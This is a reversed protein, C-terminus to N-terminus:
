GVNKWLNDKYPDGTNSFDFPLTPQENEAVLSNLYDNNNPTNLENDVSRIGDFMGEYESEPIDRPFEEYDPNTFVDTSLGLPSAENSPVKDYKSLDISSLYNKSPNQLYLDDGEREYDKDSAVQYDRSDTTSGVKPMVGEYGLSKLKQITMPTIPANRNLINNISKNRRRETRADEWERQTM